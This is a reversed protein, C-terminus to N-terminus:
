GQFFASKLAVKLSFHSKAIDSNNAFNMFDEAFNYFGPKVRLNAILHSNL